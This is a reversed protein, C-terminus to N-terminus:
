GRYDKSDGKLVSSWQCLGSWLATTSNRKIRGVKCNHNFCSTTSNRTKPVIIIVKFLAIPGLCNCSFLFLHHVVGGGGVCVCGVGEGLDWEGGLGTREWRKTFSGTLGQCLSHNWISFTVPCKFASPPTHLLLCLSSPSHCFLLSFSLSTCISLFVVYIERWDLHPFLLTNGGTSWRNGLSM